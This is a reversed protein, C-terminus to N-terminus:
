IGLVERTKKKNLNLVGDKRFYWDRLKMSTFTTDGNDAVYPQAHFVVPVNLRNQDDLILDRANRLYHQLMFEAPNMGITDEALNWRSTICGTIFTINLERSRYGLGMIVATNDKPANLVLMPEEHEVGGRVWMKEEREIMHNPGEVTLSDQFKGFLGDLRRSGPQHPSLLLETLSNCSSHVLGQARVNRMGDDEGFKEGAGDCLFTEAGRRIFSRLVQESLPTGIDKLAFLMQSKENISYDGGVLGMINPVAVDDLVALLVQDNNARVQQSMHRVEILGKFVDGSVIRKFAGDLTPLPDTLEPQQAREAPNQQEYLRRPSM